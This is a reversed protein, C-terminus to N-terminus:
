KTQVCERLARLLREEVATPRLEAGTPTSGYNLNRRYGLFHTSQNQKKSSSVRQPYQHGRSGQHGGYNYMNQYRYEDPDLPVRKGNHRGNVSRGYDRSEFLRDRYRDRDKQRVGPPHWYSCNKGFKCERYKYFWCVQKRKVMEDKDDNNMKDSTQVEGKELHRLKNCLLTHIRKRVNQTETEDVWCSHLSKGRAIMKSIKKAFLIALPGCDYGNRQQTCRCVVYGTNANVLIGQKVLYKNVKDIIREAHPANANGGSDVHYWTNGNREYILLSWHSGEGSGPDGKCDNVTFVMHRKFTADSQNLQTEVDKQPALKIFHSLSPVFYLISGNKDEGYKEIDEIAIQFHSDHLWSTRNLADKNLRLTNIQQSTSKTVLEGPMSGSKNRDTDGGNVNEDDIKSANSNVSSNSPKDKNKDTKGESESLKRKKAESLKTSDKIIEVDEEISESDNEPLHGVEGAWNQNKKKLKLVERKCERCMWTYGKSIVYLEREQTGRHSRCGHCGLGCIWCSVVGPEDYTAEYDENCDICMKTIQAEVVNRYDLMHVTDVRQRKNKSLNGMEDKEPSPDQLSRKTRNISNNSNKSNKGEKSKGDRAMNKKSLAVRKNRLELNIELNSELCKPCRFTDAQTVDKGSLGACQRTKGNHIWLCCACCMIGSTGVGANCVGCPFKANKRGAGPTIRKRTRIKTTRKEQSEMKNEKESGFVEDEEDKNNALHINREAEQPAGDCKGESTDKLFVEESDSDGDLDKDPRAIPVEEEASLSELARFGPESVCSYM